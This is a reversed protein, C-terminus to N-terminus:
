DLTLVVAEGYADLDTGGGTIPLDLVFDITRGFGIFAGPRINSNSGEPGWHDGGFVRPPLIRGDVRFVEASVANDRDFLIRSDIM